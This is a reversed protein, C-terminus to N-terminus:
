AMSGPRGSRTARRPSPRAHLDAPVVRERCTTCDYAEGQLLRKYRRPSLLKPAACGCQVPFGSPIDHQRRPEIGAQRLVAKWPEGHGAHASLRWAVLHAAEHSAVSWRQAATAAPWLRGALHIEDRAFYARGASTTLRMNWRVQLTRLGKRMGHVAYVHEIAACAAPSLERLLAQAPGRPLIVRM